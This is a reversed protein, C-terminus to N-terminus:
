ANAAPQIRQYRRPASRLHSFLLCDAGTSDQNPFFTRIIFIQLHYSHRKDDSLPSGYSYRRDRETSSCARMLAIDVCISMSAAVSGPENLSALTPEPRSTEIIVYTLHRLGAASKLEYHNARRNSEASFAFENVTAIRRISIILLSSLSHDFFPSRTRLSGDRRLKRPAPEAASAAAANTPNVASACCRSSVRLASPSREELLGPCSFLGSRSSFGFEFM